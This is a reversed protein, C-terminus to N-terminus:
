ILIEMESGLSRSLFQHVMELFSVYKKRNTSNKEKHFYFVMVNEEKKVKLM